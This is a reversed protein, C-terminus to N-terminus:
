YTTVAPLTIVIPPNPTVNVTVSDKGTKSGSSDKCTLTFTHTKVQNMQITQSGSIAKSGSWNGSAQCSSANESTWSLTIDSKYSVTIPGDSSNAKLDVTPVPLCCAWDICRTEEEKDCGAPTCTRTRKQLMQTSPCNGKGCGVNQWSSWSTCTCVPDQVIVSCNASKTQSGSVVTVKATYTGSKSFSTTCTKSSCTCAGSWTYSYIGTGGLPYATFNVTQNVQAPNPSAFCTITLDTACDYPCNSATEGCGSQCVGDGCWADKCPDVYCDYPCSSATEGCESQCIGDGCWADACPDPCDFSCNEHTEGCESQCIGDGCWAQSCDAALSLNFTFFVLFPAIILAGIILFNRHKNNKGM